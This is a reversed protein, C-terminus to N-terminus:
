QQNGEESPRVELIEAGPFLRKIEAVPNFAKLNALVAAVEDPTIWVANAYLGRVRRAAAKRHGIAVRFGSKGDFGLVYADDPEVAAELAQTAAAYGRCLAAGHTEIEEATGTVMATDFLSSQLRLRRHLDGDVRRLAAMTWRSEFIAAAETTTRYWKRLATDEGQITAITTMAMDKRWIGKAGTAIRDKEIFGAM